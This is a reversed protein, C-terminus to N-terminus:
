APVTELPLPKVDEGIIRARWEGQCKPCRFMVEPRVGPKGQFPGATTSPILSGFWRCESHPCRVLYSTIM